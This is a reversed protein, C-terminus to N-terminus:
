PHCGDPFAKVNAIAPAPLGPENGYEKVAGTVTDTVVISYGLNTTSAGFVWVHGNLACGDLVKILVEWNDRNFFQFLGSDNTGAHVVSAAGSLGDATWWDVEVSYRSDQLCLTEADSQCSGVPDSAEVLFTQVATSEVAGDTVTLTAVYFGPESWAHDVRQNRSRGGDGFEWLRSRVTGSSADEFTVPVGTRARCLNEECEADVTIAARPPAGGGGGDGGGGGGDDDDEDDDDDDSPSPGGGGGGPGRPGGGGDNDQIALTTEGSGTVRAPLGGFTVVVAEGDDDATDDTAAFLFEQTRVGPGFLVSSPVGSYDADTAGGHHTRDLDIVLDREPDRNLRVVVTVTGGETVGYNASGFSVEVEPDDDDRITGLVQLTSGGGALSAHRANRLTLRFTEEEEEDETDDTIDVVIQQAATSGASFTLTGSAATYDSGARADASGSGDSTAYDVTVESSSLRSLTVRFVLTGGSEPAEAAEVSLTSTDTEVITVRVSSARVSGYDAGSVQHSITVPADAVTDTDTAAEVFVTRPVHWNGTTFELEAPDVSLDRNSPVSPTVTVPGTPESDLVVTYNGTSGEDVTLADRSLTVGRRGKVSVSFTQEAPTNSGAIDTATVTITATGPGAPTLRVRSGSVDAAAVAPASSSADYTLTDDEPDEFAGSVDVDERGDGVQLDPGVLSGVPLPARNPLTQSLQTESWRGGGKDNVARVQVDYETGDLLGTVTYSLPGSTWVGTQMTWRGDAKDPADSRIYRIDYSSIQSAGILSPTTWSVTMERQGPSPPSIAPAGPASRHGYIKLSWSKLTAADGGMVHDSMRLTWAGAPDEGLHKASGFRFSTELGFREADPDPDKYPVSLVSVANSPSVLELQLDRFAPADFDANIEVFEIFEVKAGVTVTSTVTAGPNSTTADPIVLDPTAEAPDTEMFPPLNEWGDALDVAAKANVVGFGYEHNFNYSGTAGYKPAGTRWGSNGSDNKRASAALILKVDRWTLETNAARVLAAVGSVVATATSGGGSSDTYRGYNLTTFIGTAGSSPACIWLNAGKESYWSRRGRNNTACVTTATYYNGVEDLNSNDGYGADNGGGFVYFVGKGGYGTEVGTDFATAWVGGVMKIGPGGGSVWSNNMVATTAMNRTMADIFDSELRTRYSNYGYITARPAVGRGGLDNDRAAIVGAMETGHHDFASHLGDGDTYDHGRSVDVNDVLDPHDEHLGDDVIAVTVGAGLNGGSWVDVVRIDEGANGGLQGTNRLHWQCWSLPDSFPPSPKSCVSETVNMDSDRSMRIGYGGTAAGGARTLKIYHTGAELHGTLTFGMPGVASFTEAFVGAEAPDGDGDLLEGDIEVTNSVARAIVHTASSLDIRFYDADTSPDIRGAGLDEFDLSAADAITSGPETVTEVHFSYLGTEEEDDEHESSAEVKVYYTGAPLQRRLLFQRPQGPLFSDDSTAISNGNSDLLEGATDSVPPGARLLIDTEESLTFKFYDEDEEPYLLANESSGVEVEKADVIGTTDVVENAHVTYFGTQSSLLPTSVQLYYTGAELTAWILFNLPGGVSSGNDNAELSNSDGDYLEGVTDISGRTFLVMGTEETLTFRFFDVDNSADIDGGLPIDLPVTVATQYGDGPETPTGAATASWSGDVDTVARVQVDYGSDDTLGTLIYRVPGDTWIDEKVTWNSDVTEDASTLIYRLDYATIDTVGTPEEWLVTLAEDGAHAATITPAAPLISTRTFTLTAIKNDNFKGEGRISTIVGQPDTPDNGLSFETGDETGADWPYLNVTVSAKWDGSSDLLSLSSVGVFWDPSPAIMTVLTVRPHDTTLTVDSFTVTATPSVSDSTGQLISLRDAGVADIENRLTSYGGVEAMSEVGGSAMEGDELFVAQDNHVGGILRSFHAGSPLGGPTVTTTWTGTFTITYKAESRSVVDPDDPSPTLSTNQASAPDPLVFAAVLAGFVLARRLRRVSSSRFM